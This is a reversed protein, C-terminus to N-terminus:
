GHLNYNHFNLKSRSCEIVLVAVDLENVFICHVAFVVLDFSDITILNICKARKIVGSSFHLGKGTILSILATEVCHVM